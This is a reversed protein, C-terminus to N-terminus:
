SWRSSGPSNCKWRSVMFLHWDATGDDFNRFGHKYAGRTGDPYRFVAEGPFKLTAADAVPELGKWNEFATGGLPLVLPTLEAARSSLLCLVAFLCLALLLSKM